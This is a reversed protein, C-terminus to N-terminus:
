RSAAPALAPSFSTPMIFVMLAAKAEGAGPSSGASQSTPIAPAATM